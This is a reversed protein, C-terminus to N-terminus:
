GDSKMIRAPNGVYIGPETIDRIVVSGSGVVVNACISIGNNVVSQSGIFVNRGINCNGNVVAGTSVHVHDSVLVDHEILSKNNIICNTGVQAGANVMAHHMVITGEAINSHKSVISDPSIVVPLVVQLKKLRTYIEQRISSSKIQGVTVLFSMSGALYKEILGDNGLVPYGCIRQDKLHADLIGEIHFRGEKEIVDICSKCHGGGGVLILKETM